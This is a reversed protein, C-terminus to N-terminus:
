ESKNAYMRHCAVDMLREGTDGDIPYQAIGGSISIHSKFVLCESIALKLREVFKKASDFDSNPLIVVFEDGGFRALIDSERVLKQMKQAVKQLVDDGIIHGMTDNVKKFSDLDIFVVSVCNDYRKARKIERELMESLYRKNYLGTLPDTSALELLNNIIIYLGFAMLLMGLALLSNEIIYSVNGPLNFLENLLGYVASLIYLFTGLAAIRWRKKKGFEVYLKLLAIFIISSAILSIVKFVVVSFM